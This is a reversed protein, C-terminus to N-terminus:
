LGDPLNGTLPVGSEKVGQPGATLWPGKDGLWEIRGARSIRIAGRTPVGYGYWIKKPDQARLLRLCAHLEEWGDEEGHFDCIVRRHIGICQVLAAGEEPLDPREPEPWRPWWAGIAIAGASYAGVTSGEEFRHKLDDAIGAEFAARVLVFHDGGTFYLLDAARIIARAEAPPTRRCLLRVPNVEAGYRRRFTGSVWQIEEPDEGGPATFLAVQPRSKGTEAFMADHWSMVDSRRWDPYAILHISGSM